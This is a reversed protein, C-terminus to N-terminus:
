TVGDKLKKVEVMENQMRFELDTLVYEFLDKLGYAILLM